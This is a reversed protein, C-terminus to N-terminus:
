DSKKKNILVLIVSSITNKNLMVFLMITIASLIYIHWDISVIVAQFIALFVNCIYVKYDIYFSVFRRSDIMRITSITLFAVFTGIIAGWVDYKQIFIYNFVVNVCAAILTTVMTGVSKKFAGYLSGYYSSIASFSASILLLPIYKWSILFSEGVYISMFYKIITNLFISAGFAIFSYLKFINSYFNTDNTSENENITSIGWSQSFISIIVNILAPIKTAVTYLGLAAAGVMSEIMIKDTSHIVWWSIDNIIIPTSYVLMRKMLQFDYKAVRLDNIIGSCLVGVILAIICALINSLLYGSIGFKLIVLLVINSSALIFTQIISIISYLKNKGLVKIYTLIIVNLSFFIVYITLYWKWKAIPHYLNFLPTILICLLSGIFFVILGNLLVDEKKENKALGFRLIASYICVSIIPSLLQACTFVLDSIGYEDTTLYNTYIPVLLFLIIKSGFSGIAFVITDKILEKYKNKM